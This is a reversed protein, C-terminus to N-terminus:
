RKVDSKIRAIIENFLQEALNDCKLKAPDATSFFTM